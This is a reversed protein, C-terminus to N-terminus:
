RQLFFQQRRVSEGLLVIFGPRMNEHDGVLKGHIAEDASAELIFFTQGADM